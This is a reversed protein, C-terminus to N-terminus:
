YRRLAEDCGQLALLATLARATNAASAAANEAPLVPLTRKIFTQCEDDSHGRIILILQVSAVMGCGTAPIHQSIEALCEERLLQLAQVYVSGGSVGILHRGALNTGCDSKLVSAAM